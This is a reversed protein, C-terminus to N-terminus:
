QRNTFFSTSLFHRRALLGLPLSVSSHDLNRGFVKSRLTKRFGEWLSKPRLHVFSFGAPDPSPSDEIIPVALNAFSASGVLHNGGVFGTPNNVISRNGFTQTNEMVTGSPIVPCAYTGVVKPKPCLGLITRVHRSLSSASISLFVRLAFQALFVNLADPNKTRVVAKIGQSRSKSNRKLM